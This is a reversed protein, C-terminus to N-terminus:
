YCVKNEISTENVSKMEGDTSKSRVSATLIHWKWNLLRFVWKGDTTTLHASTCHEEPNPKIKEAKNKKVPVGKGIEEMAVQFELDKINVLLAQNWAINREKQLEYESKKPQDGHKSHEKLSSVEESKSKLKKQKNKLGSGKGECKKNDVTDNKEKDQKDIEEGQIEENNM